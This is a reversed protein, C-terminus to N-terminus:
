RLRDPDFSFTVPLIDDTFDAPLPGFRRSGAEVAGQAEVDFAFNGSSTIFRFGTVSGDRRIFFFVEAKLAGPNRPNFNLAVQRVINQLYGPFPFEIGETRVTAVDTGTGGTEGGGATPARSADVRETAKTSINPTARTPARRTPPNIPATKVPDPAEAKPPAKATPEATPPTERVVGEQRPGPPAAVLDVKYMPPLPASPAAKWVVFPLVVAVHLVVSIFLASGMGDSPRRAVSM